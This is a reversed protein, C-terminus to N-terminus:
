QDISTLQILRERSLRYSHNSIDQLKTITYQTTRKNKLYISYMEFLAEKSFYSAEDYYHTVAREMYYLTYRCKNLSTFAVVKIPIESEDLLQRSKIANASPTGFGILINMIIDQIVTPIPCLKLLVSGTELINM